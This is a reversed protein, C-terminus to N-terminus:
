VIILVEASKRTGRHPTAVGKRNKARLTFLASVTVFIISVELEERREFGKM